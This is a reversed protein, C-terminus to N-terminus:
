AASWESFGRPRFLGIIARPRRAVVQIHSQLFLASGAAVANGEQFVGRVTDVANAEAEMHDCYRNILFCDGQRRPGANSPLSGAERTYADAFAALRGTHDTDLLDLCTGLQIIAGVVAFARHKLKPWESAWDHARQHGYEWFYVGHGLWDWDNRSAKFPEDESLLGEAVRKPCAHYGIVRRDYRM